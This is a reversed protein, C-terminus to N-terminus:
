NGIVTLELTDDSALTVENDYDYDPMAEIQEESLGRLLIQNGNIVLDAVPFAVEKDNLGFFWGGHEIVVYTDNGNNVVRDVVGLEEDRANVVDMGEIEAISMTSAGGELKRNNDPAFAETPNWPNDASRAAAMVGQTSGAQEDLAQKIVIKPDGSQVVDITPEGDTEMIVEPEAAVYEVNPEVGEYSINASSEPEVYTINANSENIASGSATVTMIGADDMREFSGLSSRDVAAAETTLDVNLQPEGQRVTVRPEPINVSVQPQANAVDVSPDPMTVVIEPAPQEVTITPQTMRVTIIPQAQRVQITPQGQAVTVTPAQTTVSVDAQGQEISVEPDPLTVDVQGEITAQQEVQVTTNLSQVDESDDALGGRSAIRGLTIRCDVQKNAAVVSRVDKFEERLTDGASRVMADLRVCDDDQAFVPSGLLLGAGCLVSLPAYVARQKKLTRM